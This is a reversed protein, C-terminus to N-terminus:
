FVFSIWKKKQSYRVILAESKQSIGSSRLVSSKTHNLRLWYTILSILLTDTQAIKLLNCSLIVIGILYHTWFKRLEKNLYDSLRWSQNQTNDETSLLSECGTYLFFTLFFFFCSRLIRLLTQIAISYFM